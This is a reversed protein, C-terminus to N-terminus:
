KAKEYIMGGKGYGIPKKKVAGGMNMKPAAKKSAPKSTGSKTKM